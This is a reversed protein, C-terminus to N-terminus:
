FSDGVTVTGDKTVDISQGSIAGNEVTLRTFGWVEMQSFAELTVGGGLSLGAAADSAMAHTVHYGGHGEVLYIISRGGVDPPNSHDPVIRTLRQRNHVHGSIM